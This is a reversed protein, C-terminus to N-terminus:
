LYLLTLFAIYLADLLSCVNSLISTKKLLIYVCVCACVLRQVDFRIPFVAEKAFEWFVGM